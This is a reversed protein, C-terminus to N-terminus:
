FDPLDISDGFVMQGTKTDFTITIYVGDHPILDGKSDFAIPGSVGVFLVCLLVCRTLTLCVCETWM